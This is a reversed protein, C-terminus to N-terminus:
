FFIDSIADVNLDAAEMHKECQKYVDEHSMNDDIAETMCDLWPVYLSMRTFWGPYGKGCGIGGSVILKKIGNEDIFLPSGSDGKCAGSFVGEENQFGVACIQGYSLGLPMAKDYKKRVIKNDTSNYDMIKKCEENDIITVNSELLEGRAGTETLGRGLVKALQGSKVPERNVCLPTVGSNDFDFRVRRGLGM